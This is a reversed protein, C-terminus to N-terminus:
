AIVEVLVFLLHEPDLEQHRSKEALRRAAEVAECVGAFLRLTEEFGLKTARAYEDIPAGDVLELVLFSIGNDKGLAHITAVNPHNLSALLKAEREFRALREPDASLDEPLVKIAVDRNLSSDPM